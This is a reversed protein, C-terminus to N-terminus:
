IAPHDVRQLSQSLLRRRTGGRRLESQELRALHHLRNNDAARRVAHGSELDAVRDDGRLKRLLQRSSRGQLQLDLDRSRRRLKRHHTCRL